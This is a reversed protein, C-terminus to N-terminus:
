EVHFEGPHCSAPGGPFGINRLHGAQFGTNEKKNKM